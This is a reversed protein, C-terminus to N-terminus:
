SGYASQDESGSLGFLTPEVSAEADAINDTEVLWFGGAGSAEGAAILLGSTGFINRLAELEHEVRGNYKPILRARNQEGWLTTYQPRADAAGTTSRQRVRYASSAPEM